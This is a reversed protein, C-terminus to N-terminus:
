ESCLWTDYLKCQLRAETEKHTKEQAREIPGKRCPDLCGCDAQKAFSDDRVPVLSVAHQVGKVSADLALLHVFGNPFAQRRPGARRLREGWHDRSFRRRSRRIRQCINEVIEIRRQTAQERSVGLISGINVTGCARGAPGNGATIM